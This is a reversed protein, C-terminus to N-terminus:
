QFSSAIVLLVVGSEEPSPFRPEIRPPGVSTVVAFWNGDAMLNLSGPAKWNMCVSAATEHLFLEGSGVVAMVTAAQTFNEFRLVVRPVQPPTSARICYM